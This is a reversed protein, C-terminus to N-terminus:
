NKNEFTQVNDILTRGYKSKKLLKNKIKKDGREGGQKQIKM